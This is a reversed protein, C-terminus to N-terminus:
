NSPARSNDAVKKDLPTAEMTPRAVTPTNTSSPSPRPGGRVLVLLIVVVSTFFGDLKGASLGSLICKELDRPRHLTISDRIDEPLGDIFRTTFFIADYAPNHALVSNIILWTRQPKIPKYAM